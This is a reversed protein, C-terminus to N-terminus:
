AASDESSSDEELQDSSEYMTATEGVEATLAEGDLTVSAACREIVSNEARGAVAGPTIAGVIEGNVTCNTIRFATEEGYYYLGTGVLGGVHTAGPM